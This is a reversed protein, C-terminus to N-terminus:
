TPFNKKHVFESFQLNITFASLNKKMLEIPTYSDTDLSFM